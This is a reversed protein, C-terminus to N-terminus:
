VDGNSGLMVGEWLLCSGDCHGAESPEATPRVEALAQLHKHSSFSVCM